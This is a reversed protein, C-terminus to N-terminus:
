IRNISMPVSIENPSVKYFDAIKQITDEDMTEWANYIATNVGLAAAVDSQRLGYRARLERLSVKM